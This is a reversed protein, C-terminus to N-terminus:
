WSPVDMSIIILVLPNVPLHHLRQNKSSKSDRSQIRLSFGNFIHIDGIIRFWNQTVYIHM